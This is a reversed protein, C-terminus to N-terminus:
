ELMFLDHVTCSLIEALILGNEVSPIVENREWLSIHQRSVSSKGYKGKFIDAVQQQTLGRSERWAKINNEM